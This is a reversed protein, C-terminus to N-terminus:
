RNTLRNYEEFVLLPCKDFFQSKEFSVVKITYTKSFVVLRKKLMIKKEGFKNCLDAYTVEIQQSAPDEELTQTAPAGCAGVEEEDDDDMDDDRACDDMAEQESSAQNALVEPAARDTEEKARQDEDTASAQGGVPSRPSEPEPPTAGSHRERQRTENTETTQTSQDRNSSQEEEPQVPESNNRGPNTTM